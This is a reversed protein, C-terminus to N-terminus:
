RVGLFDKLWFEKDEKTMGKEAAFKELKESQEQLLSARAEDQIVKRQAVNMRKADMTNKAMLALDKADKICLNRDDKARLAAKVAIVTVAQTLFEASKAGFGEGLEGVVARSAAEIERIERGAEEISHDHRHLSSRSLESAPQGPFRQQLDAIMEDLTLRDERLLRDVYERQEAPLRSVNSKRKRPRKFPRDGAM